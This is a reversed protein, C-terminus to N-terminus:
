LPRHGATLIWPTDSRKANAAELDAKIWAVQDNSIDPTDFWTETNYMVM